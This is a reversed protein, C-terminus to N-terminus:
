RCEGGLYRDAPAQQHAVVHVPNGIGYDAAPGGRRIQGELGPLGDMNLHGLVTDRPAALPRVHSARIWARPDAKVVRCRSKEVARGVTDSYEIRAAKGIGTILLGTICRAVELTQVRLSDRIRM